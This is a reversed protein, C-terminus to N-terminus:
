EIEGSIYDLIGSKHHDGFFGWCSGIEEVDEEEFDTDCYVHDPLDLLTPQTPIAKVTYGYVSGRLYDDYIDVESHLIRDALDLRKKTFNNFSQESKLRDKSCYIIGVVGSDWGSSAGVSMSIGSHDYLSVYEWIYHKTFKKIIAEDSKHEGYSDFYYNSMIDLIGDERMVYAMHKEISDEKIGKDGLNYRNHSCAMTFLNDFEKRPNTPDDDVLINIQYAKKATCLIMSGDGYKFENELAKLIFEPKVIDNRNELESITKM